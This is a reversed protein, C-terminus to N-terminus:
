VLYNIYVIVNLIKPYQISIKMNYKYKNGSFMIGSNGDYSPHYEFVNYIM